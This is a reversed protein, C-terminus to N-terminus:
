FIHIRHGPRIRRHELHSRTGQSMRHAHGRPARRRTNHRKQEGINLTRGTPPFCVRIRHPGGQKRMVLHQPGRDFRVVAEQETAGTITYDSREVRRLGCDIGRHSRLLCKLQGHPHPQRGPLSLKPVTVIETRHEVAGSPHHGGPVATLDQQGLRRRSQEASNPPTTSSDTSDVSNTSPM